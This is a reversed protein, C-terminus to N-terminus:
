CEGRHLLHCVTCAVPKPPAKKAFTARITLGHARRQQDPTWTFPSAVIADM